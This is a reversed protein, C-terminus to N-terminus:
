EAECYKGGRSYTDRLMWVEDAVIKRVEDGTKGPLSASLREALYEMGACIEAMRAVWQDIVEDRSILEGKKTKLDLESSEARALRYRELAPSDCEGSMASGGVASDKEKDIWWRVCAPASYTGDRNRPMGEKTWRTVTRRDKGLVHGLEVGNIKNFRGAM